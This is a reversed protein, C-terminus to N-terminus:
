TRPEGVPLVGQASVRRRGGLYRAFAWTAMPADSRYHLTLRLWEGTVPHLRMRTQTAGPRLDFPELALADHQGTGRVLATCRATGSAQRECVIRLRAATDPPATAAAAVRTPPAYFGAVPTALFATALLLVAPLLTPM